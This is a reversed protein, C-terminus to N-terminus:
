RILRWTSDDPQITDALARRRRTTLWCEKSCWRYVRHHVTRREAPSRWICRECEACRPRMLLSGAVDLVWRRQTWVLMLGCWVLLLVPFWSPVDSFALGVAALVGLFTFADSNSRKKM